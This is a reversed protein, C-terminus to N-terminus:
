FSTLVFKAGSDTVMIVHESFAMMTVTILNIVEFRKLKEDM